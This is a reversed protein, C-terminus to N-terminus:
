AAHTAALLQPDARWAVLCPDGAAYALEPNAEARARALWALVAARNGALARYRLGDLSKGDGRAAAADADAVLQALMAARGGAAHRAAARDVAAIRAPRNMLRAAVAAERLYDDDRGAILYAMALYRHGSCLGPDVRVLSELAAIAAPVAGASMEVLAADAVIAHNDPELERARGIESRATAIDGIAQAATAYWHHAKASEPARRLAERFAALGAAHDHQWWFAVFAHDLWADALTPDLALATRAARAAAPFAVADPVAGFERSLVHADALGSWAAARDPYRLTLRQYDRTAAAIGAASRTGIEFAADLYTARAAADDDYPGHLAAATAAPRHGLLAGAIAAIVAVGTGAALARQRWGAASGAAPVPAAAPPPEAPEVHPAAGTLWARLEARTAWVTPVGSGPVRHVPMARTAEWRKATRADCGLFLGIAKWGVLRDAADIEVPQEADRTM